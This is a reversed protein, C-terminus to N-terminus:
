SRMRSAGAGSASMAIGAIVETDGTLFGSDIVYGIGVHGAALPEDLGIVGPQQVGGMVLEAARDQMGGRYAAIGFGCPCAPPRLLPLTILALQLEDRHVRM